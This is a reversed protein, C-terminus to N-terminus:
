TGTAKNDTRKETQVDLRYMINNIDKYSEAKIIHQPPNLNPPPVPCRNIEAM